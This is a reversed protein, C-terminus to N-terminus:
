IHFDILYVRSNGPLKNLINMFEANWDDQPKDNTSIGFWGMEGKELWEGDVVLCFPASHEGIYYDEDDKPTPSSLDLQNLLCKNVHEGDKRKLCGDWRGGEVYWDWKSNPNYKSYCEWQQNLYNFRWRNNNWNAGNKEYLEDFKDFMGPYNENFLAVFEDEFQEATENYYGNMNYYDGHLVPLRNEADLKDFLMAKIDKKIVDRNYHTIFDIKELNSVKGKSYEPVDLNENYKDLSSKLDNTKLYQPTLVVMGVFHSM